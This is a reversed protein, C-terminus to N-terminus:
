LHNRVQIDLTLHTSSTVKPSLSFTPPLLPRPSLSAPANTKMTLSIEMIEKKKCNKALYEEIVEVFFLKMTDNKMSLISLYNLRKELM